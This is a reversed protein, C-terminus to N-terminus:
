YQCSYWYIYCSVGVIVIIVIIEIYVCLLRSVFIMMVTCLGHQCLLVFIVIILVHKISSIVIDVWCYYNYNRVCWDMFGAHVIDRNCGLNKSFGTLCGVCIVLGDLFIVLYYIFIFCNFSSSTHYAPWFIFTITHTNNLYYYWYWYYCVFCYYYYYYLHFYCWRLYM